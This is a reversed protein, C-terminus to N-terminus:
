IRMRYHKRIYHKNFFVLGIHYCDITSTVQEMQQIEQWAQEMQPSHHIDDIVYISHQKAAPLLQRFYRTTAEYTHNADIYAVDVSKPMHKPM